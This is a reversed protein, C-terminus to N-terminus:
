WTGTGFSWVSVEVSWRPGHCSGSRVFRQALSLVSIQPSSIAGMPTNIEHAIGAVLSAMTAMKESQILQVQTDRLDINTKELETLSQQLQDQLRKLQTIDYAFIRLLNNQAMYTTKQEYIHAGIELERV